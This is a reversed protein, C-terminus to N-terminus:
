ESGPENGTCLGNESRFLLTFRFLFRVFDGLSPYSGAVNNSTSSVPLQYFDGPLSSLPLDDIEDMTVVGDANGREDARIFPRVRFPLSGGSLAQRFLNEAAFYVTAQDRQGVLIRTGRGDKGGTAERCGGFRTSTTVPNFRLQIKTPPSDDDAPTATADVLAHLGNQALEVLDESTANADLVTTDGPVTFIAGVDPCEVPSIGNFTQVLGRSPGLPRFVVDSAAGRGRYSCTDPAGIKGVTMTRFGLVVRDFDLRYRVGESADFEGPYIGNTTRSSATFLFQVSGLGLAEDAPVCAVLPLALWLWRRTM